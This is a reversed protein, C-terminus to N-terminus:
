LGGEKRARSRTVAHAQDRSDRRAAVHTEHDLFFTSNVGSNEDFKELAEHHSGPVLNKDDNVATRGMNGLLGLCKDGTEAALQPQKIKWGIRRVSVRVFQHPLM